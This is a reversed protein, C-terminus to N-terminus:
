DSSDVIANWLPQVVFICLMLAQLGFLIVYGSAITARGQLLSTEFEEVVFVGDEPRWRQLQRAVEQASVYSSGGSLATWTADVAIDSLETQKLEGSLQRGDAGCLVDSQSVRTALLSEFDSRRLLTPPAVGLTDGAHM